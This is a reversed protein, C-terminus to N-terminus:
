QARKDVTSLDVTFDRLLQRPEWDTITLVSYEIYRWAAELVDQTENAHGQLLVRVIARTLLEMSPQAEVVEPRKEMSVDWTCAVPM